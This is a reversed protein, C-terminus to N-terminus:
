TSAEELTMSWREDCENCRFSFSKGEEVDGKSLHSTTESGCHPCQCTATFVIPGDM